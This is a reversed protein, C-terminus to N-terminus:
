ITEKKSIGLLRKIKEVDILCICTYIIFPIAPVRYRVLSGFNATALGIITCLIIVVFISCLLMNLQHKEIKKFFIISLLMGLIILGSELASMLMMPNKVEYIMPKFLGFAFAKPSMALLDPWNGNLQGISYFSGAKQHLSFRTFDVQKQTIIEPINYEPYLKTAMFLGAVLCVILGFYVLPIFKNKVLFGAFLGTLGIGVAALAYSKLFFMVILSFLAIVFHIKTHKKLVLLCIFYFINGLAFILLGEKLNGASWFNLSPFLFLACALLLHKNKDIFLSFGKYFSMMGFFSLFCMFLTHIHFYGFSFLRMVANMRIMTHNDNYVQTEYQRFWHNMKMYYEQTFYDSDNGIGFLMKFFDGPKEWLARTMERSDDYYKFIDADRHVKYYLTYILTLALGLFLKYIFFLLITKQSLTEDKFHNWRRLFYILVFLYGILLPIGWYNEM